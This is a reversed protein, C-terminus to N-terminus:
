LLSAGLHSTKMPISSIVLLLPTIQCINLNGSTKKLMYLVCALHEARTQVNCEPTHSDM